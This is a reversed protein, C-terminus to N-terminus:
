IDSIVKVLSGLRIFRLEFFKGRHWCPMVIGSQRRRKIGPWWFSKPSTPPVDATASWPCGTSASGLTSWYGEGCWPCPPGPPCAAPTSRGPPPAVAWWTEAWPCPAWWAPWTCRLGWRSFYTMGFGWSSFTHIHEFGIENPKTRAIRAHNLHTTSPRERKQIYQTDSQLCPGCVRSIVRGSM